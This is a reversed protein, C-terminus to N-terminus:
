LVQKETDQPIDYEPYMPPVSTPQIRHEYPVTRNWLCVFKTFEESIQLRSYRRKLNWYDRETEVFSANPLIRLKNISIM